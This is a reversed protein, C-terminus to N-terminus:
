AVTEILGPSEPLGGYLEGETARFIWSLAAAIDFVNIVGDGTRKGDDCVQTQGFLTPAGTGNLLSAGLALNAAQAGSAVENFAGPDLLGGLTSPAGIDLCAFAPDAAVRCAYDDVLGSLATERAVREMLGVEAVLNGERGM